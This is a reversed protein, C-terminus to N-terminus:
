SVWYFFEKKGVLVEAYWEGDEGMELMIKLSGEMFSWHSLFLQSENSKKEISFTRTKGDAFSGIIKKDKFALNFVYDEQPLIFFSALGKERFHCLPECNSEKDLLTYKTM